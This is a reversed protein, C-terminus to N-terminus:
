RAPARAMKGVRKKWRYHLPIWLLWLSTAIALGAVANWIAVLTAIAYVASGFRYARRLSSIARDSVEQYLLRRKYTVSEFLVNQFISTLFLTGCYFAVATNEATAGFNQALVGTPFPLFTVMLLLSGNAWDLIHDVGRILRFLEHHNIWIMLILVFSLVFALFSPWLAELASLLAINDTPTERTPLRVELVLLTIAIAFVSDSFTELRATKPEVM